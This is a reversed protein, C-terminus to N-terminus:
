NRSSLLNLILVVTIFHISINNLLNFLSNFGVRIM